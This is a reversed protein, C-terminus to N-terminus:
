NVTTYKATLTEAIKFLSAPACGEAKNGAIVWAQRQSEIAKSALAAIVKRTNPEEQQLSTFPLFRRKAQDHTTGHKLMWRVVLWPQHVAALARAQEIISPMSPHHIFCHAIQYENLLRTYHPAHQGSLLGPERIELTLHAQQRQEAPIDSIFEGLRQLFSASDGNISGAQFAILLPGAKDGLGNLFPQLCHQRFYDPNLFRDSGPLTIDRFSKALLTFGQPVQQAYDRYQEATPPKYWSHDIEVCGLLPHSSYAPLGFRSLLNPEYTSRQWVSGEWGPYSWSATGLQVLPSLRAAM